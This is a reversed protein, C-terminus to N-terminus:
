QAPTRLPMNPGLQRPPAGKMWAPPEIHNTSLLKPVAEGHGAACVLQDEM